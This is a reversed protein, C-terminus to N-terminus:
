RARRALRGAAFLAVGVVLLLASLATLWPAQAPEAGDRAGEDFGLNAQANTRDAATGEGPSPAPVLATSPTEAPAPEPTTAEGPAGSAVPGTAETKLLDDASGAPAAEPAM